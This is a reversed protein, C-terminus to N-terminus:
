FPIDDNPKPVPPTTFGKLEEMILKEIEDLRSQVGYPRASEPLGAADVLVSHVQLLMQLRNIMAM